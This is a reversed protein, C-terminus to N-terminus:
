LIVLRGDVQLTNGDVTLRGAIAAQRGAPILTPRSITDPNHNIQASADVDIFQRLDLQKTFDTGDITTQNNSLLWAWVPITGPPFADLADQIDDFTLADARSRVTSSAAVLGLARTIGIAVWAHRNAAPVLSSLESTAGPFHTIQGDLIFTGPYVAVQTSNQENTAQSFCLLTTIQSPFVFRNDPEVPTTITATGGPASTSEGRVVSTKGSQPDVGLVVISGPTKSIGASSLVRVKFPASLNNGSQQTRVWVFNADVDDVRSIQAITENQRVDRRYRTQVRRRVVGTM